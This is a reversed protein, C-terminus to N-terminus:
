AQENAGLATRVRSVLEGLRYPKQIFGRAGSEVAEQVDGDQGYGTSLLARVTPDIEKLKLFTERGGMEPMIMDLIVLSIDGNREGYVKVAQPGTEALLVRYGHAELMEKVLFRLPEEDDVVLILGKQEHATEVPASETAEARGSVPLFLEFTAGAGPESHVLVFGGHNKVVGYVMPLGLGTGKGVEKTTFFPDFIREMTEKNMGVGTDTLSLVVYEGEKAEAHKEVFDHGLTAVSTKVTLTGGQPMADRANVCLNMLAQQVQGADAEVPPIPDCLLIEIEISKDFTRGVIKVTEKIIDNLDVARVVYKGRRAFALLQATLEAARSASKEITEVYDFFQHDQSIKSKMLSVYGLIGGLLNNFDHAIGGALTGISEMKQAQFLQQELQKRETIDRVIATFFLDDKTRWMALSLEIPFESGNKRLGVFETTRGVVVSQGTTVARKLDTRQEERLREPMIDTFKMGAAEDATHGFMTQAANNWFVVTGNSDICIIADNATQAVSRFREESNQLSELTRAREVAYRISRELLLPSIQGKALYDAAGAKMAEIDVERDGQGTMLIMPTKCGNAIAERLLELGDREGLRYDFIYVDHHNRGVADLAADYTALWELSYGHGPIESIMDRVIIYDDEDDDVLLIKLKRDDM